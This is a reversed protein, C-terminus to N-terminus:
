VDSVAGYINLQSDSIITRFVTEITDGDACFHISLTGGGKSKLTGRSLPNTARFVPHGSERFKIMMLEAVRDWEGRPRENYTSYRQKESGPGLFSWRGAPFRKAFSSVLTANATCETENDKNGWIIDNFMSMFIIRGQFQAPDSMKSMFKQVEDVLQLTTFGPVYEM